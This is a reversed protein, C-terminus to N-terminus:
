VYSLKSYNYRPLCLILLCAGDVVCVHSLEHRVVDEYVLGRPCFKRVDSVLVM